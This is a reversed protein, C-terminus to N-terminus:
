LEDIAPDRHGSGYNILTSKQTAVTEGLQNVYRIESVIFLMRGLRGEKEAVEAIRRTVTLRDGVKVPAFFKYESGGDLVYAFPLQLPKPYRGPILSRLFTPPAILGGYSSKRAVLGNMYLPSQDGIAHAFKAVAGQEIDYTAPASEVGILARMEPTITSNPM